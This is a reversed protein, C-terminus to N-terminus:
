RVFALTWDAATLSTSAPNLTLCPFARATCAQPEAAPRGRRLLQLLRLLRAHPLAPAQRRAGALVLGGPDQVVVLAVVRAGIPILRLRIAAAPLIGHLCIRGAAALRAARVAAASLLPLVVLPRLCAVLAHLRAHGRCTCWVTNFPTLFSMVGMRM